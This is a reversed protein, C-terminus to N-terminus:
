PIVQYSGDYSECYPSGDNEALYARYDQVQVYLRHLSEEPDMGNFTDCFVRYDSKHFERLKAKDATIAEPVKALEVTRILKWQAGDYDSLPNAVYRRHVHAVTCGDAHPIMVIGYQYQTNIM